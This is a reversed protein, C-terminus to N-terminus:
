SFASTALAIALVGRRCGPCSAGNFTFAAFFSGSRCFADNTSLHIERLPASVRLLCILQGEKVKDFLKLALYGCFVCFDCSFVSFVLMRNRVDAAIGPQSIKQTKQTKERSHIGGANRRADRRRQTLDTEMLLLCHGLFGFAARVIDLLVGGVANANDV